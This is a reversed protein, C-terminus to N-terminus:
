TGAARYGPWLEFLDDPYAGKLLPDLMWANHQVEFLHAARSDAESNTDATGSGVNAVIGKLSAPDNARLVQVATGHALLLHHM